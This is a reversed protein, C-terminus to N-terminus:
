MGGGGGIPKDTSILPRTQLQTNQKLTRHVIAVAKHACSASTHGGGQNAIAETMTGSDARKDVGDQQSSREVLYYDHDKLEAIGGNSKSIRKSKRYYSHDRLAHPQPRNGLAQTKSSKCSDPYDLLLTTVAHKTKQRKNAADIKFDLQCSVPGNALEEQKTTKQPSRRRAKEKNDGHVHEESATMKNQKEMKVSLTAQRAHLAWLRGWYDQMTM